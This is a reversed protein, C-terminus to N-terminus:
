PHVTLIFIPYSIGTFDLNRCLILTQQKVCVYAKQDQSCVSEECM